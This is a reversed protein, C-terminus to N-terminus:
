HCRFEKLSTYDVLKDLTRLTFVKGQTALLLKRMDQKRVAFGRGAICAIVQFNTPQGKRSLEALHQIRTIKDRATGDDETLKAEIVIRPNFESPIIFDPTQDFGPIAEARRTKRYSIGERSLVEEVATEVVDGVLESVSDRHGAFPRGLLREYLLMAYPLGLRAVSSISDLGQKTDAKCLRHLKDPPTDEPAGEYLLKCATEILAEIKERSSTRISTPDWKGLRIQREITRAFSQSIEVGTQKRAIYAWEPPTFGLMTRLVIFSIPNRIVASWVCKPSLDTFSKTEQKLLEYGEEFAAYEVFGPGKPMVMFDSELNSFIIDVYYDINRKLEEYNVEFPFKVTGM